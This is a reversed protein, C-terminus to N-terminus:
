GPPSLERLRAQVFALAERGAEDPDDVYPYLEVTVWGDYGTSQIARLVAPFDIAGHGPILHAHVRTALLGSLVFVGATLCLVVVSGADGGGLAQRLGVGLFAAVAAAMTGATPAIANATTLSPEPVTLPVAASLGALVFRNIGIALLVSVGLGAGSDGRATFYIVPIMSM